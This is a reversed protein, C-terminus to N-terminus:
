LPVLHKGGPHTCCLLLSIVKHPFRFYLEQAIVGGMSMGLVHASSCNAASMVASADDAFMEISYVGPNVANVGTRGTGRNDFRIVRYGAAVLAPEVRYWM